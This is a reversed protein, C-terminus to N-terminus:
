SEIIRIWACIQLYAQCHPSWVSFTLSQINKLIWLKYFIMIYIPHHRSTGEPEQALFRLFTDLYVENTSFGVSCMPVYMQFHSPVYKWLIYQLHFSSITILVTFIIASASCVFYQCNWENWIIDCRKKLLPPINWVITYLIARYLIAGRLKWHVLQDTVHKKCLQLYDRPPLVITWLM